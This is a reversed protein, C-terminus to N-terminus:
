ELKIIHLYGIGIYSSHTFRIYKATSKKVKVNTIASAYKSPISGIKTWTEKDESTEISAGAGNGPYWLKTDGNYGGIEIEEFEWNSNLEITINGPSACCIGKLLKKDKLDQYRGTGATVGKHVYPGSDTLSVFKIDQLRETLYDAIESLEFYEAEIHIESLEVKTFKKYNFEHTRIFDLLFEFYTPNRDFYITQNFDLENSNAIKHFLTDPISNMTSKRTSFIKGGVNFRIISDSKNLVCHVILDLKKWKAERKDLAEIEGELQTEILELRSKITGLDEKLQM